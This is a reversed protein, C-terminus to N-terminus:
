PTAVNEDVACSHDAKAPNFRVIIGNTRKAEAYESADSETEFNKTFRGSYYEGNIEYSYDMVAFFYHTNRTRVEKVDSTEVTGQTTPWSASGHFRARRFLHLAVLPLAGTLFTIIGIDDGAGLRHFELFSAVVLAVGMLSFVLVHIFRSAPSPLRRLEGFLASYILITGFVEFIVTTPVDAPM